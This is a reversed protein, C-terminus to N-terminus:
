ESGRESPATDAGRCYLAGLARSLAVPEPTGRHGTGALLPAQVGDAHLTDRIPKVLVPHPGIELYARIGECAASSVAETFLVPQRLNRAWYDADARPSGLPDVTSLWPTHTPAPALDALEARLEPLVPDVRPSHSAANIRITRCRVGERELDAILSNTAREDGTVVTERPASHAAVVVTGGVVRACRAAVEGSDLGVTAMVGGPGAADLLRSRTRVVLAAERLSLAGAIHAAAVEGLSHGIVVAPRLGEAWLWRALAVQIAFILPQTSAPIDPWLGERLPHLVGGPLLGDLETLVEAAVPSWAALARGMGPWQSGHGGFCWAVRDAVGDAYGTVWRTSALGDAFFSLGEVLGDRDSAAVALRRRGPRRSGAAAPDGGARM